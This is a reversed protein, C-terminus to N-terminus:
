LWTAVMVIASIVFLVGGIVATYRRTRGGTVTAVALLPLTGAILIGSLALQHKKDDAATAAAFHPAPDLDHGSAQQALSARRHAAVDYTGDPRIYQSQIFGWSSAAEKAARLAEVSQGAATLEEARRHALEYHLWASQSQTVEAEVTLAARARERTAALGARAADGSARDAESLRWAILAGLLGTLALLIALLLGLRDSNRSSEVTM